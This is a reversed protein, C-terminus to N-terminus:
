RDIIDNFVKICYHTNFITYFSYIQRYLIDIPINYCYAICLVHIVYKRAVKISGGNVRM